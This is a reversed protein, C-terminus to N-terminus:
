GRAAFTALYAMVAPWHDGVDLVLVLVAAVLVTLFLPSRLEDYGPNPVRQRQAHRRNVQAILRRAQALRWGHRARQRLRNITMM